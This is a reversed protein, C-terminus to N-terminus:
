KGAADLVRTHTAGAIPRYCCDRRAAEIAAFTEGPLWQQLRRSSKTMYETQYTMLIGM